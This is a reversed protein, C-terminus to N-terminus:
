WGRRVGVIQCKGRGLAMSQLGLRAADLHEPWPARQGGKDHGAVLGTGTLPHLEAQAMAPQQLLLDRDGCNVPAPLGDSSFVADRNRNALTGRLDVLAPAM